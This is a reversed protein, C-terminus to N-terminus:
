QFHGLRFLSNEWQFPHNEMYNHLRKGSPVMLFGHKWGVQGWIPEESAHRMLSFAKSYEAAAQATM